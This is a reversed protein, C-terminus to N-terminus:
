GPARTLREGASQLTGAATRAAAAAREREARRRATEAGDQRAQAGARAIECKLQDLRNRQRLQEATANSGAGNRVFGDWRWLRGDRDVLSQGPRLRAQLRCGDAANKVWGTHGLRRALAAPAMVMEGFPHVGDPLPAPDLTALTVWGAGNATAPESVAPAALEGDFLAAVAAEFGASVRLEWLLSTGEARSSNSATLIRALAKAEAELPALIRDADRVQEVAEAERRQCAILTEATAAAETRAQEVDAAALAMAASAAAIAEPSVSAALLAEHQRESEALRSLLRARRELLGRRQCDLAVRRAEASASAETAQQLRNEAEALYRAAAAARAAADGSESEAGADARELDAREQALKTLAIEADALRGAERDRDGAIQALHREAEIRAATVRALERDLTEGAHAIRQL